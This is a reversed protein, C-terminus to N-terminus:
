YIENSMNKTILSIAIYKWSPNYIDIFKCEKKNSLDYSIMREYDQYFSGKDNKILIYTMYEPIQLCPIFYRIEDINLISYSDKTKGILDFFNNIEDTKIGKELLVKICDNQNPILLRIGALDKNLFENEALYNNIEEEKDNRDFKRKKNFNKEIINYYRKKIEINSKLKNEYKAEDKESMLKRKRRLFEKTAVFDNKKPFYKKIEIKKEFIPDNKDSIIINKKMKYEDFIDDNKKLKLNLPNFLKFDLNNQICYNMTALDKSESDFIYCFYNQSVSIQCNEKLFGNLFGFSDNLSILTLRDDANKKKTVQILYLRWTRESKRILLGVDFLLATTLTQSLILGEGIKVDKKAKKLNICDEKSPNYLSSVALKKVIKEGNFLRKRWIYYFVNNELTIPQIGKKVNDLINENSQINNYIENELSLIIDTLYNFLYQFEFIYNECIESIQFIFKDNVKLQIYRFPIIQYLELFKDKSMKSMEIELLESLSNYFGIEDKGKFYNKLGIKVNDKIKQYLLKKDLIGNQKKNEVIEYFMPYINGLSELITKERKNLNNFDFESVKVLRGIYLYDLYFNDKTKKVRKIGKIVSGKVDDENMSSLLIIHFSSQYKNLLLKLYYYNEDLATKYQDIILVNLCNISKMIHLLFEISGCSFKNFNMINEVVKNLNQSSICHSLEEILLNKIGENDNLRILESITKANFYFYDSKLTVKCYGLITTTKGIGEPGCIPLFAYKQKLKSELLEYFEKRETTYNFFIEDENINESYKLYKNYSLSLDKLRLDNYNKILKQNSQYILPFTKITIKIKEIPYLKLLDKIEFYKYEKIDKNWYYYDNNQYKTLIEIIHKYSSIFVNKRLGDPLEFEVNRPSELKYICNKFNILYIDKDKDKITDYKHRNEYLDKYKMEMKENLYFYEDKENFYYDYSYKKEM